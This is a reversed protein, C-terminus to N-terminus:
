ILEGNTTITYVKVFINKQALELAKQVIIEVGGCCPVEMRLITISKIEMEKFILALKQIYQEAVHDLKPCLIITQKNKIFRNHIGPFAYATCDAAILLDAGKLWGSSPNILQLQVPWNQLQSSVSESTVVAKLNSKKMGHEHCNCPIEVSLYDPIAINRSKLEEIAQNLYETQMHEYLHKLHAKIVDEGGKIIREVVIKENYAEAEREEITIAGVPCDKICAGLGDCFLDDILHAKGNILQLAGEHCGSVCQGCGNCKEQDITIIQRKM